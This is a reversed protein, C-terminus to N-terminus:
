VQGVELVADAVGRDQDQLLDGAREVAVEGLQDAVDRGARGLPQHQALRQAALALGIQAAGADGDALQEAGADEIRRAAPLDVSPRRMASASSSGKTSSLRSISRIAPQLM